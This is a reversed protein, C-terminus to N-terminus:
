PATFSLFLCAFATPSPAAFVAPVHTFIPSFSPHSFSSTPQPASIPQIPPSAYIPQQSADLQAAAAPQHTFLATFSAPEFSTFLEFDPLFLFLTWTLTISPLSRLERSGESSTEM